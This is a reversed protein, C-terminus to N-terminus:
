TGAQGQAERTLGERARRAPPTNLRCMVSLPLHNRGAFSKLPATGRALHRGRHNRGRTRQRPGWWEPGLPNLVRAGGALLQCPPGRGAWAVSARRTKRVQSFSYLTGGVWSSSELLAESAGQRHTMEVHPLFFCLPPSSLSHSDWGLVLM